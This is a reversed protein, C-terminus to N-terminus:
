KSSVQIIRFGRKSAVKTNPHGQETLWRMLSDSGRSKKVVLWASGGPRLRGLWTRLVEHLDVKGTHLPPNSYIAEVELFEPVEDPSVVKVNGLRLRDTNLRTLERARPNVDVAWITARPARLALSISIPGYGCGIDVLNGDPPPDSAKDLLILTGPDVHGLSFVGKDTALDAIRGDPLVFPVSFTGAPTGIKV